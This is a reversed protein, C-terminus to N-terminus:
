FELETFQEVIRISAISAQDYISLTAQGDGKQPGYNAIGAHNGGEIVFTNADSPIKDMSLVEDNSGYIYYEEVGELENMGYSGLYTIGKVKDDPFEALQANAMAGGLSHGVIVYEDDGMQETVDLYADKDFFAMHFPFDVITVDYGFVNIGLALEAYAQNDVKAGPYIIFGVDSREGDFFINNDEDVTAYYNITSLSAPYAEYYSTLYMLTGIVAVALLVVLGILFKKM